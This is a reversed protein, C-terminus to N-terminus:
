VKKKALYLLVDWEYGSLRSSVLAESQGGKASTRIVRVLGRPQPGDYLCVSNARMLDWLIYDLPEQYQRDDSM